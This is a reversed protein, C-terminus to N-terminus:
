FHLFTKYFINEWFKTAFSKYLFFFNFLLLPEPVNVMITWLGIYVPYYAAM